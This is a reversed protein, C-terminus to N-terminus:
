EVNDFIYIYIYCCSCTSEVISKSAILVLASKLIAPDYAKQVFIAAFRLPIKAAACYQNKLDSRFIILQTM